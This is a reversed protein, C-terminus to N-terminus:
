SLVPSWGPSVSGLEGWASHRQGSGCRWLSLGSTGSCWEVEASQGVLSVLAM